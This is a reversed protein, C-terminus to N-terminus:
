IFRLQTNSPVNVWQSSMFADKTLFFEEGNCRLNMKRFRFGKDDIAICCVASGMRGELSQADNPILITGIRTSETSITNATLIM